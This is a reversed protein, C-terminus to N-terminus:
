HFTQQTYWPIFLKRKKKVRLGGASKCKKILFSLPPSINVLARVSAWKNRLAASVGRIVTSILLLMDYLNSQVPEQMAPLQKVYSIHDGAPSNKYCVKEIERETRTACYFQLPFDVIRSCPVAAGAETPYLNIPGGKWSGRNFRSCGRVGVEYIVM